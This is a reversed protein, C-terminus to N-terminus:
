DPDLLLSGGPKVVVTGENIFADAIPNLVSMEGHITITGRNRVQNNIRTTLFAGDEIILEGSEFAGGYPNEGIAFIGANLKPWNPVGAPIITKRNIDPIVNYNWNGAVNWGSGITGTWLFPTYDRQMTYGDNPGGLAFFLETNSNKTSLDYGQGHGGAYFANTTNVSGSYYGVGEGGVFLATNSDLVIASYYGVGEGGVFLTTNSDLLLVSQYGDGPGGNFIAPPQGSLYLALSSFIILLLSKLM